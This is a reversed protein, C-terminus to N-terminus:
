RCRPPRALSFSKMIREAVELAGFVYEVENTLIPYCSPVGVRGLPGYARQMHVTGSTLLKATGTQFVSYQILMYEPPVRSTTQGLGVEPRLEIYVVHRGKSEKAMRIAEGRSGRDTGESVELARSERLRAITVAHVAYSERSAQIMFHSDDSVVALPIKEEVKEEKPPPTPEPTPTPVPAVPQQKPQRRGSQAFGAACTLLSAAAVLTAAAHARSRARATLRSLKM